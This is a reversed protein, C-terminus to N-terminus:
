EHQQERIIKILESKDLSSALTEMVLSEFLGRQCNRHKFNGKTVKNVFLCGGGCLPVYPCDKCDQWADYGVMDTYMQTMKNHQWRM